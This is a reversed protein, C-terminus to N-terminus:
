GRYKKRVCALVVLTFGNYCYYFVPDSFHNENGCQHWPQALWNLIHCWVISIAWGYWCSPFHIISLYFGGLRMHVVWFSNTLVFSIFRTNFPHPDTRSGWRWSDFLVLGDVPLLRDIAAWHTPVRVRIKILWFGTRLCQLRILSNKVSGLATLFDKSPLVTPCCRHTPTSSVASKNHSKAHVVFFTCYNLVPAAVALVTALIVVIIIPAGTRTSYRTQSDYQDDSM